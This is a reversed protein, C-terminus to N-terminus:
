DWALSDAPHTSVGGRSGGLHLVVGGEADRGLAFSSVRGLTPPEQLAEWSKGGDRTRYLVRAPQGLQPDVESTALLVYAEEASAAALYFDAVFPPPLPLRRSAPQWTVGRDTSRFLGAYGSYIYLTGDEAFDPSFAIAGAALPAEPPEFDEVTATVTLPLTQWNDTRADWRQLRRAFSALVLRDEMAAAAEGPAAAVALDYPNAGGSAELPGAPPSLAAWTQGADTSYHVGHYWTVALLTYGAPEPAPTADPGPQFPPAFALGMVYPDGMGKLAQQWSRGGDASRMLGWAQGRGFLANSFPVAFLLDGSPAVHLSRPIAEAPWALRQWDAERGRYLRWEFGAELDGVPGVGALFEGGPLPAIAVVPGPPDGLPVPEPAPTAPPSVPPGPTPTRLRLVDPAQCAALLLAAVFLGLRSAL